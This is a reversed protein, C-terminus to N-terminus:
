WMMCQLKSVLCRYPVLTNKCDALIVHMYPTDPSENIIHKRFVIGLNLSFVKKNGALIYTLNKVAESVCHFPRVSQYSWSWWPFIFITNWGVKDSKMLGEAWATLLFGWESSAVFNVYLPVHFPFFFSSCHTTTNHSESRPIQLCSVYTCLQCGM